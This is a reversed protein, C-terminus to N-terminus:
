FEGVGDADSNMDDSEDDFIDFEGEDSDFREAVHVNAEEDMVDQQTQTGLQSMFENVQADIRDRVAQSAQGLLVAEERERLREATALVASEQRRDTEIMKDLTDYDISMDFTQRSPDDEIAKKIDHVTSRITKLVSLYLWGSKESPIRRRGKPYNLLETVTPLRVHGLQFIGAIGQRITEEDLIYVGAQLPNAASGTNESVAAPQTTGGQRTLRLKRSTNGTAHRRYDFVQYKYSDKDKRPDYGFRIWCSRWPGNEMVYAMTSMITHTRVGGREEASIMVEMANRSVVPDKEIIARAKAILEEPVDKAHEIAEATPETPVNKESYRIFTGHFINSHAASHKKADGAENGFQDSPKEFMDLSFRSPWCSSDLFPAPIYANQASLASDLVNSNVFKKAEDIDINQVVKALDVLPDGKPLIYQFDALKRFRATKEIVGVIKASTGVTEGPSDKPAGKPRRIRRTVKILVNHTPVIEGEIPHSTPDDYRYRLELQAGIGQSVDRSLKERGGLSKIAKEADKVYGPYEVSLVSRQPLTFREAYEPYRKSYNM